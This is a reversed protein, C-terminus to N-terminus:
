RRGACRRRAAPLGCRQGAPRVPLLRRCVHRAAGIRCSTDPYRSNGSRLPPSRCHSVGLQHFAVNGAPVVPGGTECLHLVRLVGRIGQPPYRRIKGPLFFQHGPHQSGHRQAGGATDIRGAQLAPGDIDDGSRPWSRQGRDKQPHQCRIEQVTGALQYLPPDAGAQTLADDFPHLLFQEALDHLQRHSIQVGVGVSIEYAAHGVVDFVDGGRHGLGQGGQEGADQHHAAGNGHHEPVAPLQRQQAADSHQQGDAGGFKQGLLYPFKGEAALLEQARQVTCHLFHDGAVPRHHSIVVLLLGCVLEAGGRVCQRFRCSSAMALANIASGRM